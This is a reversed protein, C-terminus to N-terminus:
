MNQCGGLGQGRGQGKGFGYDKLKSMDIGNDEAWDRMEGRNEGPEAQNEAMKDLLLQKQEATIVGDAVAKSLNGEMEAKRDAQRSARIEDMAAQVKSQDLGLKEALQGVMEGRREENNAASAVGSYATGAIAVIGLAVLPILLKKNM